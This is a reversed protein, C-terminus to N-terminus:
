AGLLLLARASAILGLVVLVIFIMAGIDDGKRSGRTTSPLRPATGPHPAASAALIAPREKPAPPQHRPM